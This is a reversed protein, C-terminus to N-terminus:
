FWRSFLKDLWGPRQPRQVAQVTLMATIPESSVGDANVAAVSYDLTGAEAATITYTFERYTVKTANWGWGTRQTRTRYNTVTVGDVTITDVDTSTKVTLTAKQGVKVTSRNWSAEFREPAFVEPEVPAYMARVMAVAATADAETMVFNVTQDKATYTVKVNTLSLITGETGTNTITVIQAAKDTGAGTIAYKTIDYYMETATAIPKVEGDNVRLAASGMPAKTGIHVEDVNEVSSLKFAISQDKALYVENNPGGNRYAEVNAATTGDIFVAGTGEGFSDNDILQNRIEIYQPYGEGDGTYDFKDGMPNYVRVADMWFSYGPTNDHDFIDGYAVTITVQYEGYTLGDVKMVPIQYLVDSDNKVTTWSGNEYKYGYYNDVLFNKNYSSTNADKGKVNVIIAGSRSDTLSIVDFGTGRFTFTATPNVTVSSDVTVKKASDMSFMTCNDYAPDYGYVNKEGDGGLEELAQQPNTPAKGDEALTWKADVATSGDAAGDVCTVFSDEYYVNSAPIMALTYPVEELDATSDKRGQYTLTLTDASSIMKNLTYTVYWNDKNLTVTAYQTNDYIVNSIKAKELDNGLDSPKIVVPLGFDVVFTKGYNFEYYLYVDKQDESLTVLVCTYNAYKYKAGIAPMTSLDASVTQYVVQDERDNQVRGDLLDGKWSNPTEENLRINKNFTTPAVVGITYNYFEYNNSNKDIYHVHLSDPTVKARLYYTVLMGQRQYIELGEVNPDGGVNYKFKGSISLFKADDSRFNAPLNAEDDVWAVKETGKYKIENDASLPSILQDSVKDSTPTVTIMYVEYNTTDIGKIMGIRRYYNNDNDQSVAGTTDAENCHFYVTKNIEPFSTPVRRDPYQVAFDLVAFQTISSGWDKTTPGWDVVDTIVEKTVDTRQMYYAIVQEVCKSYSITSGEGTVPTWKVRDASVAWEKNFYRVFQYDVRGDALTKDKNWPEQLDTTTKNLVTGKWLIYTDAGDVREPVLVSLPVGDEGYATGAEILLYRAPTNANYNCFTGTTATTENTKIPSNTIWLQIPLKAANELNEEVVEITYHTNGITVETTGKAVGKFTVTTSAPVTATGSTPWRTFTGNAYSGWEIEAMQWWNSSEKTIRVRIYKVNGTGDPLEFVEPTTSGTYDGIKMWNTGDASVEVAANTCTDGSCSTLRVADFSIAQNFTVMVNADKTQAGDSWYFTSTSGDILKSESNAGNKYPDYSDISASATASYSVTGGDTGTVSEVTAISPKDTQYSKGSYNAGSITATATGGITVTITKNETVPVEGTDQAVVFTAKLVTSNDGAAYTVTAMEATITVTGAEGTFTVKGTQDVTAVKAASTSWNLTVGEAVNNVKLKVTDNAKVTVKYSDDSQKAPTVTTETTDEVVLEPETSATPEFQDPNHQAMAKILAYVSQQNTQGEPATGKSVGTDTYGIHPGDCWCCLVSGALAIANDAANKAQTVPTNKIGNMADEYGWQGKAWIDYLYDGLVYYWADNNNIITFGAAALDAVSAYSTAQSWYCIQIDTDFPVSTTKGSYYIGDNYAMPTMGAKKVMKAVDNVYQAFATYGTSSLGSFSYEDAALNYHNSGKGAFYTIYKQQLAKIFNVEPDSTLSMESGTSSRIELTKMASVLADMHGPTNLMPIVSIGVGQAYGIITDMNSESLMTSATNNQSSYTSNGSTIANKVDTSSYTTGNAEIKMDDLLFRFGNNGFALQIHTYNNEALQDIIGEIESVSFYKRGCDLHFIRIFGDNSTDRATVEEDTAAFAAIGDDAADADADDADADDEADGPLVADEEGEDAEDADPEQVPETDQQSQDEVVPTEEAGPEAAFVSMPLLSVTMILALLLALLKKGTTHKKTQNMM